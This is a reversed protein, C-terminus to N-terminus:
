PKLKYFIDLLDDMSHTPQGYPSGPFSAWINSCLKIGNKIDGVSIIDLARRESIQRLAITDQSEPRFDHLNLATKYVDFYRALLQYRGAATSKFLKGKSCVTILIHPHDGYGNFLAGGFLVNYGDDSQRETSTGESWAILDLFRAVNLNLNKLRPM